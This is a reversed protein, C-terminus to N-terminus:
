CRWCVLSSDSMLGRLVSADSTLKSGNRALLSGMSLSLWREAEQHWPVRLMDEEKAQLWNCTSCSSIRWECRTNWTVACGYTTPSWHKGNGAATSWTNNDAWRSSFSVDNQADGPDCKWFRIESNPLRCFSYLEPLFHSMYRFWHHCTSQKNLGAKVHNQTPTIATSYFKLLDWRSELIPSGESMVGWIKSKRKKNNFLEWKWGIWHFIHGASDGFEPLRFM